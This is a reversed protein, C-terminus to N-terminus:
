HVKKPGNGSCEHFQQQLTENIEIKREKEKGKRQREKKRKEAEREEKIHHYNVPFSDNQSSNNCSCCFNVNCTM